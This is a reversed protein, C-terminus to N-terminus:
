GVRTYPKAVEKIGRCGFLYIIGFPLYSRDLKEIIYSNSHTSQRNFM